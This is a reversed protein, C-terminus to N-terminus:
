KVRVEQEESFERPYRRSQRDLEASLEETRDSYSENRVPGYTYDTM